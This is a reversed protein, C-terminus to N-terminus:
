DELSEEFEIMGVGVEDGFAGDHSNLFFSDASGHAIVEGAQSIAGCQLVVGTVDASVTKKPFQICDTTLYFPDVIM